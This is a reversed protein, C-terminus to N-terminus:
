WFGKEGHFKGNWYDASDRNGGYGMFEDLGAMITGGFLPAFRGGFEHTWYGPPKNFPCYSICLACGGTTANVHHIVCATPDLYWKRVHNNISLDNPDRGQNTMTPGDYVANNPCNKACALCSECFKSIGYDTPKGPTMPLDTIVGALRFAAGVKPSIMMHHRGQEGLGASIAMPITLMLDNQFPIANYGLARVFQAVTAVGFAATSYGFGTAGNAVMTPSAKYMEFPMRFLMMIVYKMNTSIIRTGDEKEQYHEISDSFEIPCPNVNVVGPPVPRTRNYHSFIWRQDLLAVGMDAALGCDLAFRKVTKLAEDPSAEWRNRGVAERAIQLSHVTNAMEPGIPDWSYLGHNGQMGWLMHYGQFNHVLWAVSSAADVITNTMPTIPGHAQVRRMMEPEQRRQRFRGENIQNFRQYGPFVTHMDDIREFTRPRTALTVGVGGLAIAGATVGASKLFERRSLGCSKDAKTIKRMIKPSERWLVFIAVNILGFILFIVVAGRLNGYSLITISFDLIFATLGICIVALLCRYWDKLSQHKIFMWYFLLACVVAIFYRLGIM